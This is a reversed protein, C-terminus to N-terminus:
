AGAAPEGNPPQPAPAAIWRFRIPYTCTQWDHAEVPRISSEVLILGPGDLSALVHDPIVVQILWESTFRRLPGSFHFPGGSLRLNFDTPPLRLFFQHEYEQEEDDAEERM